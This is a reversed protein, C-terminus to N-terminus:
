EVGGVVKELRVRRELMRKENVRRDMRGLMKREMEKEMGREM